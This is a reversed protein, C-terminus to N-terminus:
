PTDRRWVVLTHSAGPYKGSQVFNRAIWAALNTDYTTGFSGHGYETFRHSDTVIVRVDAADLREIAQQEAPAADLMGPLLSINPLADTRGSLAYFASLQPAFLVKEGPYTSRVVDSLAARYANADAASVKMTGGPGTVAISKTQADKVGLAFGTAALFALWCAGLLAITRTEAVVRLHLAALFVAALPAFYVATQARPAHFYFAAYTTGGAIALAVTLALGASAEEMRRYRAAVVIAAVAAGGPIWGYVFQLATRTAELNDFAVLAAALGLAAYAFRLARPSRDILWAISMLTVVGAAYLVVREGHHLFSPLTMPAHLRLLKDGGAQLVSTPDLNEFLLAHLSVQTLFAGYVLAPVALTPAALVAVGRFPLKRLVCWAALAALAALELEPKTLSVLGAASGAVALRAASPNAPMYALAVLMALLAAMGFTMAETHPLVYSFNTPSVAVGLVLASALFAGVAGVFARALAYTLGVIVASVAIGVVVAPAIGDGGIWAALGLAFPALPGYYYPFDVYPLQGHAVKSAAVLDFGTDRGLDGWTGWTLALLACGLFTLSFLALSDASLVASRSGARIRGRGHVLTSFGAQLAPLPRGVSKPSQTLGVDSM